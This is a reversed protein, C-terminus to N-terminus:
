KFAGSSMSMNSYRERKLQNTDELTANIDQWSSTRTGPDMQKLTEAREKDKHVRWRMAGGVASFVGSAVGLPLSLPSPRAAVVGTAGSLGDFLNATTEMPTDGQKGIESAAKADLGLSALTLAGGVLGYKPIIKVIGNAQAIEFLNKLSKQKFRTQNLIEQTGKQIDGGGTVVERIEPSVNSFLQTAAKKLDIPTNPDILTGRPFQLNEELVNIARYYDQTEGAAVANELAILQRRMPAEFRKLFEDGTEGVIYPLTVKTKVGSFDGGHAISKHIKDAILFIQRPDMGFRQGMDALGKYVKLRETPPMNRLAQLTSAAISHHGVLKNGLGKLDLIEMSKLTKLDLGRILNVAERPNNPVFDGGLMDIVIEPDSGLLLNLSRNLKQRNSGGAAFDPTQEWTKIKNALAEQFKLAEKNAM